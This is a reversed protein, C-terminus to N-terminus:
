VYKLDWPDSNVLIDAARNRKKECSNKEIPELIGIFTRTVSPSFLDANATVRDRPRFPYRTSTVPFFM